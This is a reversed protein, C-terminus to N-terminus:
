ANCCDEKDSSTSLFNLFFGDSALVSNKVKSSRRIEVCSLVNGHRIGSTLACGLSTVLTSV